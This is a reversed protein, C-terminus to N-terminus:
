LSEILKNIKKNKWEMSFDSFLKEKANEKIASFINSNQFSQDILNAIDRIPAYYGWSFGTVGNEIMETVGDVNRAFVPIGLSMAELIVTPLPDRDSTLVFADAHFYGTGYLVQASVQGKYQIIDKNQEIASQFTSAYEKDDEIIGGVIIGKYWGPRIRNLEKMIDIFLDPRKRKCIQGVFILSKANASNSKVGTSEQCTANINCGNHIVHIKKPYDIDKVFSDRGAKSPTIFANILPSFKAVLTHYMNRQIIDHVYCISAIHHNFIKKYLMVYLMDVTNNGYLFNIHNAKVLQHIHILNCIISLSSLIPKRRISIVHMRSDKLIHVNKNQKAIEDLVPTDITSTYVYFNHAANNQLYDALVKEAGSFINTSMIILVNKMKKGEIFIILRKYSELHQIM